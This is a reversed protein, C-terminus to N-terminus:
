AKAMPPKAILNGMPECYLARKLPMDMRQPHHSELAQLTDLGQAAMESKRRARKRDASDLAIIARLPSPTM